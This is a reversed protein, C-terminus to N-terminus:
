IGNVNILKHLCPMCMAAKKIKNKAYKQNVKGQEHCELLRVLRLSGEITVSEGTLTSHTKEPPQSM